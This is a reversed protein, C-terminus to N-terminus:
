RGSQSCVKFGIKRAAAALRPRLAQQELIQRRLGSTDGRKAADVLKTEVDLTDGILKIYADFEPQLEEPPRLRRFRRFAERDTALLQDGKTALSAADRFAGIRREREGQDRCEQDGQSVLEDRTLRQGGGGGCGTLVVAVALAILARRRM